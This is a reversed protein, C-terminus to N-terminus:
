AMPPVSAAGPTSATTTHTVTTTKVVDNKNKRFFFIYVIELIGLTNLILLAVFWAKQHNRAAHWLAFGKWILSWLALLAVGGFFIGALTPNNAFTSPNFGIMNPFMNSTLFTQLNSM